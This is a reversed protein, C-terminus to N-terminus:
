RRKHRIPNGPVATLDISELPLEYTRFVHGCEKCKRQRWILGAVENRRTDTVITEFDLCEPCCSM